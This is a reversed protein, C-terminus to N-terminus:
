ASRAHPLSGPNEVSRAGIRGGRLAVVRDAAAQWDPRDTVVVITMGARHGLLTALLRAAAAGDLRDPLGDILLVSPRIALARALALRPRLTAPM